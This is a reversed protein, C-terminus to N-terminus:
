TMFGRKNLQDASSTRVGVSPMRSYLSSPDGSVGFFVPFIGFFFRFIFGLVFSFCFGFYGHFYGMIGKSLDSIEDGAGGARQEREADRRVCSALRPRVAM